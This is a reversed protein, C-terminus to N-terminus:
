NIHALSPNNVPDEVGEQVSGGQQVAAGEPAAKKTEAGASVIRFSLQRNPSRCMVTGDIVIVPWDPLSLLTM